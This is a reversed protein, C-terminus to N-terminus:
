KLNAYGSNEAARFIEAFAKGTTRALQAVSDYEPYVRKEGSPLTCAKVQVQGFPTTVIRNERPLESRSIAIRRIGITTTETFIIQELKEREAEACIVNLQYAPRNKKMFIPTCSVDKAGAAFLQEMTYGLIEGSADDINTELKWLATSEKHTKEAELIMARLLSPHEYQRKGGGIGTHLIHFQEPLENTTKIAAAIAAGTPTILEGETPTFHLSLSCAAAINAVAPVPIPLIGHQCRITGRGESLPSIVVQDVALNDLCVAASVIDVISDVAGVEHFHVQEMTTGHAKAEAEGLIRFIKGALERAKPTLSGANIIATIEQMTRHHHQQENHQPREQLQENKHCHQQTHSHSEGHHCPTDASSSNEQLHGYLYTMDHDHNEHQEDLRVAFDCVDLGAKKVRSIKLEFGSLPLSDIAQRLISEDAGADLLAAVTMDGSIGMSCDLYLIKM